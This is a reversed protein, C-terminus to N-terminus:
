AAQPNERKIARNFVDDRVVHIKKGDPMTVTRVVPLSAETPRRLPKMKTQTPKAGFIELIFKKM